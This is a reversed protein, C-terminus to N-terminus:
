NMQVGASLVFIWWLDADVAALLFRTIYCMEDDDDDYNDNKLLLQRVCSLITCLYVSFQYM